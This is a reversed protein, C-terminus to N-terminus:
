MIRRLRTICSIVGSSNRPRILETFAINTIPPGMSPWNSDPRTAPNEVGSNETTLPPTAQIRAVSAMTANTGLKSRTRTFYANQGRLIHSCDCDHSLFYVSLLTHKQLFSPCKHKM